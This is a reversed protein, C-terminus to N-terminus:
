QPKRLEIRVHGNALARRADEGYELRLNVFVKALDAQCMGPMKAAIELLLMDDDTQDDAGGRAVIRRGKESLVKPQEDAM